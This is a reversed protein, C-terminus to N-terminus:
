RNIEHNAPKNIEWNADRKKADEFSSSSSESKDSCFITCKNHLKFRANNCM